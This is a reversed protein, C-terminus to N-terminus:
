YGIFVRVIFFLNMLARRQAAAMVIKAWDQVGIM